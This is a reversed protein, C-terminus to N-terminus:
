SSLVHDNAHYNAAMVALETMSSISDLQALSLDCAPVLNM